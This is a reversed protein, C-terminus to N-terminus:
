TQNLLLLETKTCLFGLLLLPPLPLKDLLRYLEKVRKKIKPICRNCLQWNFLCNTCYHNNCEHCRYLRDRRLPVETTLTTLEGHSRCRITFCGMCMCDNYKPTICGEWPCVTWHKGYEMLSVEIFEGRTFNEM